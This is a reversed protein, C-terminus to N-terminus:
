GPQESHAVRPFHAHSMEIQRQVDEQHRRAVELSASLQKGLKNILERHRAAERRDAETRPQMRRSRNSQYRTTM